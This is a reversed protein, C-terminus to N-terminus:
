NETERGVSRGIQEGLKWEPFSEERQNILSVWKETDLYVPKESVINFGTFFAPLLAATLM